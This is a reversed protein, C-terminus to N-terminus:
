FNLYSRCILEGRIIIIIIKFNGM